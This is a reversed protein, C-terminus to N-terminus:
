GCWSRDYGCGSYRKRLDYRKTMKRVLNRNEDRKLYINHTYGCHLCTCYEEGSKYYYNRGYTGEEKCKPCTVWDQGSGM